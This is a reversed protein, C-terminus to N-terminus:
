YRLDYRLQAWKKAFASESIFYSHWAVSVPCSLEDLYLIYVSPQGTM